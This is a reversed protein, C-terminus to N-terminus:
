DAKRHQRRPGPTPVVRELGSHGLSAGKEEPQCACRSATPLAPEPCFGTGQQRNSKRDARDRPPRNRHRCRSAVVDIAERRAIGRCRDDPEIARVIAEAKQTGVLAAIPEGRNCEGRRSRSRPQRHALFQAGPVVASSLSSRGSTDDTRGFLSRALGDAPHDIKGPGKDADHRAPQPMSVTRKPESRCTHGTRARDGRPRDQREADVPLGPSPRSERAPHGPDRADSFRRQPLPSSTNM